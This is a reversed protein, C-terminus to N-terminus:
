RDGDGRNGLLRTAHRLNDKNAAPFIHPNTIRFNASIRVNLSAKVQTQKTHKGAPFSGVSKVLARVQELLQRKQHNLLEIEKLFVQKRDSVVAMLNFHIEETSYRFVITVNM